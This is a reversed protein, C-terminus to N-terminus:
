IELSLTFRSWVLCPYSLHKCQFFCSHAVTDITLLYFHICNKGHRECALLCARVSAYQNRNGLCGGYTFRQCYRGTANFFFRPFSGHCPGSEPALRCHDPTWKLMWLFFFLLSDFLFPILSLVRYCILACCWFILLIQLMGSLLCVLIM